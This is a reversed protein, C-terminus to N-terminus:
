ATIRSIIVSVLIVVSVLVLALSLAFSRLSLLGMEAKLSRIRLANGMTMNESMNREEKRKTM